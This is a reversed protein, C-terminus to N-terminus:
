LRSGVVKSQMIRELKRLRDMQKQTISIFPRVKRVVEIADDLLLGTSMLYSIAMTPGRGEGLKCHIYVKGGHRIEKHIFNIGEQLQTLSPATLDKTALHLTQMQQIETYSPIPTERMNVIGTIGIKQMKLIGRRTYQGGVYLSPTIESRRLQPLGLVSRYLHDALRILQVHAKLLTSSIFTIM